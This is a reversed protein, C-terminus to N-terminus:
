CRSRARSPRRWGSRGRHAGSALRANVRDAGAHATKQNPLADTDGGHYYRRGELELHGQLARAQAEEDEVILIRSASIQAVDRPTPEFAHPDLGLPMLATVTLREGAVVTSLYLRDRARTM